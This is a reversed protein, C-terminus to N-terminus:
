LYWKSHNLKYRLYQSRERIFKAAVGGVMTYPAVDKTVVAGSAVVAGKGIRVGPLIIVCTGIYAYDEIVVPAGTTEFFPDDIDHQMTYIRTESALNVCSGISIGQRADFICDHGIATHEDISLAQPNMFRTRSLISSTQALKVGFSRYVFNRFFHSPVYGTLNLLYSSWGNCFERFWRCAKLLPSLLKSTVQPQQPKPSVTM